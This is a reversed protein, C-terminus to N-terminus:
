TSGTPPAGAIPYLSPGEGYLNRKSQAPNIQPQEISHRRADAAHDVDCVGADVQTLRVDGHDDVHQARRGGRRLRQGGAIAPNEAGLRYLAGPLQAPRPPDQRTLAV